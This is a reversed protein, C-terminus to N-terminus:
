EEFKTIIKRAIQIEKKYQKTGKKLFGNLLLAQTCEIFSPSDITFIVSRYENSNVSIRMEYFETGELQKVFKTNVVKQTRMINMVYDFKEKVSSSLSQYYSDFEESWILERIPNDM